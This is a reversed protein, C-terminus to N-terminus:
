SAYAIPQTTAKLYLPHKPSGDTNLGLHHIKFKRVNLLHKVFKDGRRKHSGHNGWAFIILGAHEAIREVHEANQRAMEIPEDHALMKKVEMSRFPFINTMCFAGYGWRKSFDICRRVTADNIKEDATSPNLCIFQVFKDRHPIDDSTGTLLDCDWDRWLTFRYLRCESFITDKSVAAVSM